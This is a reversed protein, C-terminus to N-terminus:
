RPPYPPQYGGQPYGPNPQGPQNGYGPQNPYPQYQNGQPPYSPYGPNQGQQPPNGYAPQQQQNWYNQQPYPAAPAGSPNPAYPVQHPNHPPQYQNQGHPQYQPAYAPPPGQPQYGGQPPGQPPQNRPAPVPAGSPQQHQAVGGPQPPGQQFTPPPPRAPPGSNEQQPAPSPPPQAQNLFSPTAINGAESAINTQTRLFEDKETKRAFCFDSVKGQLRLLYNTLDNYFKTGEELNSCLERFSDYATNIQSLVKQREEEAAGSKKLMSFEQSCRQLNALVSEQRDASDNIQSVLEAFANELKDQSMEEANIVGQEQLAQCFEINMTVTAGRMESEIVDRENKLAESQQCLTKLEKIVPNDSLVNAVSGSPFAENLQDDTGSLLELGRANDEIKQKVISDAEVAKQLIGEYKQCDTWLSKTLQDSPSVVLRTGFQARLSSDSEQEATLMRKAENLLDHNRQLSDPINNSLSKIKDIGGKVRVDLAKDAVSRPVGSGSTEEIAEPLHMTRLVGNLTTTLDRIREIQGDVFAKKKTEFTSNAENVEIPQVAEFFDVVFPRQRNVDWAKAVAAVGIPELKETAPIVCHYIFNNEKEAEERLNKVDNYFTKYKQSEKSLDKVIGEAVRLRSIMEGFLKDNQHAKAQHWQARAKFYKSKTSSYSVLDKSIQQSHRNSEKYLNYAQECLKALVNEKMGGRSAKQYIQEQACALMYVSLTTLTTPLLDTTPTEKNLVGAVNDKIYNYIGAARNFNKVAEKAGEDDEMQSAAIQSMLAACNWLVCLHEFDGSCMAIKGKSSSFAGKKEFPDKWAFTVACDKMSFPIKGQIKVLQDHYKTLVALSTETRDLAKVCATRRLKDLESAM